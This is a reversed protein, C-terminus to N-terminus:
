ELSNSMSTYLQPSLGLASPQYIYIRRSEPFLREGGFKPQKGVAWVVDDVGSFDFVWVDVEVNHGFAKSAVVAVIRSGLKFAHAM